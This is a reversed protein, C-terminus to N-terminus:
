RIVQSLGESHFAANDSLRHGDRRATAAISINLKGFEIQSYATRARDLETSDLDPDPNKTARMIQEHFAREM